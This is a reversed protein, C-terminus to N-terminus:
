QRSTRYAVITTQNGPVSQSLPVMTGSAAGGTKLGKEFYELRLDPRVERRGEVVYASTM